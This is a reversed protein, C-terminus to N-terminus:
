KGMTSFPSADKSPPDFNAEPTFTPQFRQNCIYTKAKTDNKLIGNERLSTM